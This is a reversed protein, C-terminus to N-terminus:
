GQAQADRTELHAFDEPHTRKHEALHWCRKHHQWGPCTCYVVGTHALRIEYRVGPASMSINQALLLLPLYASM